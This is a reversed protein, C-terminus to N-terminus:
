SLMGFTVFIVQACSLCNLRRQEYAALPIYIMYFVTLYSGKYLKCKKRRTRRIDPNQLSVENSCATNGLQRVRDSQFQIYYINQM